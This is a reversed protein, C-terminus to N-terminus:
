DKYDWIFGGATNRKKNCCQCINSANIKTKISAETISIFEQMLNRNKDFQCIKKSCPNNIGVRNNSIFIGIKKNREQSFKISKGKKSESIKKRVDLRKAPNLEGRLASNKMNQRVTDSIPLRKKQSNSMKKKSEDTFKGRSGPERINMMSFGLDIYRKWYFTEWLDLDSQLSNESLIHVIELTHNEYGYKCLSNYLLIQGKCKLRKYFSFRRDIDWSQGIYVKGSPNTIKYIGVM